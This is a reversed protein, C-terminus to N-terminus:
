GNRAVVEGPAIEDEDGAAQEQQDLARALHMVVDLSAFLLLAAGAGADDVGHGGGDELDGIMSRTKEMLEIM